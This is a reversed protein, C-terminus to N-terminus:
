YFKYEHMDPSTFNYDKVYLSSKSVDDDIGVTFHDKYNKGTLANFGNLLCAIAHSVNFEKSSLGYRGSVVKINQMNKQILCSCVDAALPEYVSGSEKTRDLVVLVKCSKPLTKVFNDVDFPRYLRVNIAGFKGGQSNLNNVANQLTKTASGMCVTVVEADPCGTYEFASYSRGTVQSFSKLANNFLKPLQKYYPSCAERAQFFIDQSQATGRETPCSPTLARLKFKRVADINILKKIEEDSIETITNIEHSTRFGDFFSGL